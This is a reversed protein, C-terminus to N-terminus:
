LLEENPGLESSEELWLQRHTRTATEGDNKTMIDVNATRIGRMVLGFSVDNGKNRVSAM